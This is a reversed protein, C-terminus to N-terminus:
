EPWLRKVKKEGVLEALLDADGTGGCKDCAGPPDFGDGGCMKCASAVRQEVVQQVQMELLDDLNVIEGTVERVAPAPLGLLEEVSSGAAAEPTACFNEIASISQVEERSDDEPVLILKGEPKTVLGLAELVGKGSKGPGLLKEVQAVSKLTPLDYLADEDLYLALDEVIDKEGKAWQRHTRSEVIKFGPMDLGARRLEAGREELDNLWSEIVTRWSLIRALEVAALKRPDPLPSAGEVPIVSFDTQAQRALEKGIEPCALSGDVRKVGKVPCFFCWNGASLRANKVRTAAVAARMDKRFQAVWEKPVVWRRVAKGGARPQVVILELEDFDDSKALSDMVGVLYIGLQKNEVPNVAKKGYKFDIVMLRRKVQYIAYDATGRVEPDISSAVVKVEPKAVIKGGQFEAVLAKITNDYLVAGDVMEDTITVLFGDWTKMTQGVRKRLDAETAEGTVLSESLTHCATGEAAAPSSPKKPVTASLAISGPCAIWREASSPSLASHIASM